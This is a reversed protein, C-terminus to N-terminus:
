GQEIVTVRSGQPGKDIVFHVPFQDKMAPLHSVIIIKAFDDQIKYLADMINGLGEEDQSGFGEDIILTQLSTGARRALLKSIAIRLAFDIRFAEGGSFMEYPRIGAPDSIKIDLTEKMGGKKLDRLSEIIIHAQNNTLKSLLDNAEQEIEPLADEILLAQIGDKGMAGAIIQYEDITQMLQVIKQQHIKHTGELKIINEQQHELSGKEQLLQGKDHALTTHQLTIQQEQQQLQLERTPIPAYLNTQTALETKDKKLKKLAMCQLHVEHARDQQKSVEHKFEAHAALAQEVKNLQETATHHESQNYRIKKLQQELTLLKEQIGNLEQTGIKKEQAKALAQQAYEREQSIKIHQTQLETRKKELDSLSQEIKSRNNVLDERKITLRTAVDHNKKIIELQAHQEILIQKLDTLLRKIRNRRHILWSEQKAFKTKLFRRRAASLNQECLPCCPDDDDTALHQKHTLGELETTLMNGYTVFRQYFDKRKEFIKQQLTFAASDISCQKIHNDCNHLEKNLLDRERQLQQDIKETEALSTTVNKHAMNLQELKIHQAHLGTLQEDHLKKEIAHAAEKYQLWQEKLELNKQLLQQHENIEATLKQKHLELHHHDLMNRQKANITRWTTVLVRLIDQNKLEEKEAQELQFLLMDRKKQQEAVVLKEQELQKKTHVLQKEQEDIGALKTHVEVLQTNILGNKQLEEHLQENLVALNAGDNQAQRVKETALKRVAEYQNLGLITALVEKREKPTKKSFENAQGQRLFASNIFSEYDLKLLSDIKHQTDRITKDTLSITKDTEPDLIGVELVAYPKGYTVMFERKVRYYQDNFSFDLIVMMQTQGLRLLGQDAKATGITKRAQGWLAWTMADLLASKGHGNKGSLCILPYTSFDVQQIEAGYSLFNKLTIKLPIM